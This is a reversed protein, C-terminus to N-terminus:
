EGLLAAKLVVSAPREPSFDKLSLDVQDVQLETGDKRDIYLVEANNIQMATIRLPTEEPEKESPPQGAEPPKTEPMQKTPQASGLSEVNLKAEQNRIIQIKPRQISLQTVQLDGRLLPLLRVRLQIDDAQLFDKTSFAEDDALTVAKLRVGLGGWLAIGVEEVTVRRGLAQESQALLYAKNRNVLRGLNLILAALLGVLVLLVVVVVIKLKRRRSKPATPTENATM